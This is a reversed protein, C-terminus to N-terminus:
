AAPHRDVGSDAGAVHNQGHYAVRAAPSLSRGRVRGAGPDAPDKRVGFAADPLVAAPDLAESGQVKPMGFVIVNLGILIAYFGYKYERLRSYDIRALGIAILVGIAAYIGQREVYFLPRGPVYNATAGKLTILSCAILALTGLTLVPDSQMLVRPRAPAREEAAQIPMVNM